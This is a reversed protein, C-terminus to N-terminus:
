AILIEEVWHSRDQEDKRTFLTRRNPHEGLQVWDVQTPEIVVMAFNSLATEYNKREEDTKIENLYPGTCRWKNAEDHSSIRSGPAAPACWTAKMGPKMAEFVEKRKKEWDYKGQSDRCGGGDDREAEGGENLSATGLSHLTSTMNHFATDPAPVIRAKGSIRFQDQSGEMWWALEVSSNSLMQVIKPTRVDSSTVLM